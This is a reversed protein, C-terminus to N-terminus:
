GEDETDDCGHRYKEQGYVEILNKLETMQRQPLKGELLKLYMMLECEAKPINAEYTTNDGNLMKCRYANKTGPWIDVLEHKELIIGTVSM